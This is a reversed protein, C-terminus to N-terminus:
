KQLVKSIDYIPMMISLAIAGVVCGMGIMMVPEILATLRQLSHEIDRDLIIAARLISAGLNGSAEGARLLPAIFPPMKKNSIMDGLSVGRTIERDGSLLLERMPVLPVSMVTRQYAKVLPLGSEILYGCSRLFVIVMYETVLRGIIPIKMLIVHCYRKFMYNRRYMFLLFLFCFPFIVLIYLSYKTLYESFAITIRTLLPLEVHLSKLMPIIQPMVGKVLGLTLIVAFIGIIVPYAMASLCKKLLEDERELLSKASALSHALDGSVEGNEILGRTTDSVRISESLSQSFLSGAEVKKIIENLCISQGLPGSEASIRLAKDISLGSSIYLELREFLLILEQRKWRLKRKQNIKYKFKM